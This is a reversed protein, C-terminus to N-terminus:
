SNLLQLILHRFLCFDAIEGVRSKVKSSDEEVGFRGSSRFEALSVLNDFDGLINGNYLLCESQRCLPEASLANNLVKMESTDLARDREASDTLKQPIAGNEPLVLWKRIEVTASDCVTIRNEFEGPDNFLGFELDYRMPQVAFHLDAGIAVDSGSGAVTERVLGPADLYHHSHPVEYRVFPLRRPGLAFRAIKRPPTHPGRKKPHRGGSPPSRRPQEQAGTFTQIRGERRQADAGAGLAANLGAVGAAISREEKHLRDRVDYVSEGTVPVPDVEVKPARKTAPKRNAAFARAGELDDVPMNCETRWRFITSRNVHLLKSLEMDTYTVRLVVRSTASTACLIASPFNREALHVISEM